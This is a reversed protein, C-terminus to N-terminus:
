RAMESLEGDREERARRAAGEGSGTAAADEADESSRSRLVRCGPGLEEEQLTLWGWM